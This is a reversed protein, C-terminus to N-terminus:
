QNKGEDLSTLLEMLKNQVLLKTNRGEQSLLNICEKLKEEIM